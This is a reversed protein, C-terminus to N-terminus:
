DRPPNPPQFRVRRLAEPDASLEVEGAPLGNLRFVYALVDAYEQRRLRGPNELPMTTRIQEFMEAATRGAWGQRFAPSMFQSTHHCSSCVQRFVVQGRAAQAETYGGAAGPRSTTASDAQARLSPPATVATLAAFGLLWRHTM